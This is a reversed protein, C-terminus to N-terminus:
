TANDEDDIAPNEDIPNGDGGGGGLQFRASGFRRTANRRPSARDIFRQVRRRPFSSNPLRRIFIGL